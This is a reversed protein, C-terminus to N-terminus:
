SKKVQAIIDDYVFPTLMTGKGDPSVLGFKGDKVAVYPRTDTFIGGYTYAIEDYLAPVVIMGTNLKVGKKGNEGTFVESFNNKSENNQM